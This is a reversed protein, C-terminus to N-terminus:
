LAFTSQYLCEFVNWKPTSPYSEVPYPYCFLHFNNKECVVPPGPMPWTVSLCAIAKTADAMVSRGVWGGYSELKTFQKFTIHLKTIKNSDWQFLPWAPQPPRSPMAVLLTHSLFTLAPSPFPFALLLFSESLVRLSHYHPFLLSWNSSTYLTKVHRWPPWIPTGFCHFPLWTPTGFWDEPLQVRKKHLRKRKNWYIQM